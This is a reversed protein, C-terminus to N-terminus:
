RKCRAVSNVSLPDEPDRASQWASGLNERGTHQQYIKAVTDLTDIDSVTKDSRIRVIRPFRLAYGSSHRGSKQIGNFAVEIVVNPEVARFRGYDQITHQKFYETMEAIELDTLGSYAKGINLLANDQRVAFTYDSLVDRRRGHGLEVGTVVVDLTALAKKWKLWSMGRKGPLYLSAADKLMLGENRRMAAQDFLPGLQVREELLMFPAIQLSDPWPITELMEKRKSLPDDLLARREFQLIDFIMLAVPVEALLAPSPKKRGLRKQLLGFPLVQGDKFAVVEGDVVLSLTLTQAASIIEPFQHSVDDLTRSYLAARSGELHLQGRIGDYKDEVYFPGPFTAFIEDETDAPTALMFKLPRFMSLAIRDLGNTKALVATEGIDGLIMNARRVADVPRNFAKAIAEEVTNEKLGIRLDGTIIKIVYKAEIPTLTRLLDIVLPIKNSAGSLKVLESFKTQIAAPSLGEGPIEMVPQARDPKCESREDVPQARDPKCESREDRWGRGSSSANSLLNEAAEGLDGRENYADHMAQDSAGSIEQVATVLASGGVNLTRSDTLAFPRGTFFVAAARLDPEDLSGLYTALFSIKKLKSSNGSIAEATEAFHRM